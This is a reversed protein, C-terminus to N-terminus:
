AEDNKQFKTMIDHPTFVEAGLRIAFEPNLELRSARAAARKRIRGSRKGWVGRPM